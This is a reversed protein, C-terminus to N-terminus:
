RRCEVVRGVGLDAIQDGEAGWDMMTDNGGVVVASGSDAGGSFYALRESSAYTGSKDYQIDERRVEKVSPPTTRDPSATAHNYRRSSRSVLNIRAKSPGAIANSISRASRQAIRCSM